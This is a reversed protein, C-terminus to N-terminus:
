VLGWAGEVCYEVEELNRLIIRMFSFNFMLENKYVLWLYLFVFNVFFIRIDGIFM